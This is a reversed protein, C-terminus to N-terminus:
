EADETEIFWQDHTDPDVADEVSKPSRGKWLGFDKITGKLQFFEKIEKSTVIYRRRTFLKKEEM